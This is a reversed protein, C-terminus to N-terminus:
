FRKSFLNQSNWFSEFCLFLLGVSPTRVDHARPQKTCPFNKSGIRAKPAVDGQMPFNQKYVASDSGRSNLSRWGLNEASSTLKRVTNHGRPIFSPTERFSRRTNAAGCPARWSGPNEISFTLKRRYRAMPTHLKIKKYFLKYPVAGVVDRKVLAFDFELGEPSDFAGAGVPKHRFEYM